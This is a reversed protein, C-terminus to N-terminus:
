SLLCIITDVCSNNLSSSIINIIKEANKRKDGGGKFEYTSDNSDKFREKERMNQKNEKKRLIKAFVVGEKTHESFNRNKLGM